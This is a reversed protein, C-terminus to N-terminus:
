QVEPLIRIDPNLMQFQEIDRALDPNNELLMKLAVKERERAIAQRLRDLEEITRNWEEEKKIHYRIYEVPQLIMGMFLNPGIPIEKQSLDAVVYGLSLKMDSVSRSTTVVLDGVECKVLSAYSYKERQELDVLTGCVIKSFTDRNPDVFVISYRHETLARDNCYIDCMHKNM